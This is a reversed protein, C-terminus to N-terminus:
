VALKGRKHANWLKDFEEDSAQVAQRLFVQRASPGPGGASPDVDTAGHVAARASLAAQEKVPRAQRELERATVREYALAHAEEIASAVDALSALPRREVVDWIADQEARPLHLADMREQIRLPAARRAGELEREAVESYAARRTEAEDRRRRAAETSELEDKVFATVEPAFKEYEEATMKESLGRLRALRADEAIQAERAEQERAQREREARITGSARAAAVSNVRSDVKPHKLVHSEAIEDPLQDWPVASWDFAPPQAAEPQDAEVPPAETAGPEVGETGGPREDTPV